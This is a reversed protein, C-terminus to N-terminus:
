RAAEGRSRPRAVANWGGVLAILAALAVVLWRHYAMEDVTSLGMVIESPVTAAWLGAVLVLLLGFGLISGAVTTPEFRGALELLFAGFALVAVVVVSYAGPVGSTYYAAVSTTKAVLYPVALAALLALSLVTGAIALRRNSEM